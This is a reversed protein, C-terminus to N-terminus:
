RLNRDTNVIAVRTETFDPPNPSFVSGKSGNSTKEAETYTDIDVCMDLM